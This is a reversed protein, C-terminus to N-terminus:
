CHRIGEIAGIRGVTDPERGPMVLDQRQRQAVPGLIQGNGCLPKTRMTDVPVHNRQHAHTGPSLSTPIDWGGGRETGGGDPGRERLRAPSEM